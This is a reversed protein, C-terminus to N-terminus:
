KKLANGIPLIPLNGVRSKYSLSKLIIMQNLFSLFIPDM